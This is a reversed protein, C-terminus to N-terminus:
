RKAGMRAELFRTILLSERKWEIMEALSPIAELLSGTAAASEHAARGLTLLGVAGVVAAPLWIQSMLAAFAITM